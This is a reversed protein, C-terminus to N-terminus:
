TGKPLPLPLQYGTIVDIETAKRYADGVFTKIFGVRVFMGPKVDSLQRKTKGDASYVGKFDSGLSFRVTQRNANIEVFRDTVQMVTGSMTGTSDARAQAAVLPISSAAIARVVFTSRKM